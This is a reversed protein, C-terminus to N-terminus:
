RQICDLGGVKQKVGLSPLIVKLKEAHIKHYILPQLRPEDFDVGIGAQLEAARQKGFDDRGQDFIDELLKGVM